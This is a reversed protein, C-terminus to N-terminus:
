REGRLVSILFCSWALGSLALATFSKQPLILCIVLALIWLGVRAFAFPKLWPRIKEMVRNSLLAFDFPCVAFFLANRA